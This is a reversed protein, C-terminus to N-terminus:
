EADTGKRTRKRDDVTDIGSGSSVRSLVAGYNANLTGCNVKKREPTRPVEQPYVTEM